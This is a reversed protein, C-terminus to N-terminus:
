RLEATEDKDIPQHHTIEDPSTQTHVVYNASGKLSIVRAPVGAVVGFDPVSDVVVANAGVAVDNGVTIGGIVKCGPGLYVRDGILPVGPNKGGYKAGVTVEHNINCHRGIIVQDNIVIGGHHGIYLGAGIRTNYPISIGYKISCRRLIVRCLYHCPRWIVSRQRLYGALRMWFTYKFGPLLFYAKAFSAFSVGGGYRALDAGVLPWFGLTQPHSM